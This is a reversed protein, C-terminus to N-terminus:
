QTSVGETDSHDPTAQHCLTAKVYAHIYTYALQCLTAKVYAHIYKYTLENM